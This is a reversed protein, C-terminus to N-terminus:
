KAAKLVTQAQLWDAVAEFRATERNPQWKDPTPEIGLHACLRATQGAYEALSPGTLGKFKASM